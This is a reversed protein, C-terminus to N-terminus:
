AVVITSWLDGLEIGRRDVAACGSTEDGVNDALGLLLLLYQNIRQWWPESLKKAVSMLRSVQWVRDPTQIEPREVGNFLLYLLEEPCVYHRTVRELVEKQLSDIFESAASQDSSYQIIASSLHILCAM